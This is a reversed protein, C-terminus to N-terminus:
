GGPAVVARMGRVPTLPPYEVRQHYVGAIVRAFADRVLDLDRLTLPAEDLQGSALREAVLSDIAARVADPTPDGLTRVIAEASDALMAVATEASQPRPGPYRFSAADVPKDSAGRARHLFYRIEGTGHHEPIFARVIPPLRAEEALRLGEIVHDRIIQASQEPLLTDHPNLGRAQNEVFFQPRGLKGIDHYYCGVRALLGNAGIAACASECLNAMAVSHAWTGPAEVALRRLLPRTPDALELLTLDTTIRTASEALPLMVMAVSTSGLAVVMGALASSFTAELSWGFTLGAGVAALAYAAVIVGLTVYLRRRRRLVRVSVAAATGGVVGFFLTGGSRLAWQEGLVIALTLAAVMAIRGNYLVSVVLAALPIPLLEPRGPFLTTIGRSLVIVGAFLAALSAMERLEAYTERRYLLMLLWFPALLLINYILPGTIIRAVQGDTGRRRLEDRLGLLKDRVEPSVEDRIGVIREGARVRYKLSDVELRLQGRRGATTEADYVLTPQFFNAVLRRFIRQGTPDGAPPADSEAREVLDSFTTISDRAVTRERGAREVTVIESTEERLVGADTVGANLLRSMFRTLSDALLGRRRGETLYAAEDASLRVDATEAARAVAAPGAPAAQDVAAFFRRLSTMVSDHRVPEFRYVPRVLQARSEGERAIEEESKRVTFPIPAIVTRDATEGVTFVPSSITEPAPFALYTVVAVIVLLSWRSLHFRLSAATGAEPWNAPNAHRDDTM